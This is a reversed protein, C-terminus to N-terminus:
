KDNMLYWIFKSNTVLYRKFLRNPENILRFFWELCYAQMWKPARPIAGSLVNFAGGVGIWISNTKNSLKACFYEQLPAGIGIWVFDPKSITIRDILQNEEDSTLKRFISPENGVISLKPYKKRLNQVLNSMNEDTSGYLYHTWSKQESLELIAEMFEPGTVREMNKFGRRKGIMSLPKGDPLTAFSNNQIQRYNENERALVTTHVNAVCVYNGRANDLNRDFDKICETMNTISINVGIISVREMIEGWILKTSNQSVLPLSLTILESSSFFLTKDRESKMM